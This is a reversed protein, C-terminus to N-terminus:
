RRRFLVQYNQLYLLAQEPFLFMTAREEDYSVDTLIDLEGNKFMEFITAWDGYVYEYKWDLYNSVAILYDHCYGGKADEESSGFFYHDDYNFYGTRIIKTESFGARTIFLTMFLLAAFYKNKM